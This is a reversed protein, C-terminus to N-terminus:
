TKDKEISKKRCEGSLDSIDLCSSRSKTRQLLPHQLPQQQQQQLSLQKIPSQNVASGNATIGSFISSCLGEGAVGGSGSGGSGSGSGSSCWDAEMAKSASRKFHELFNDIQKEISNSPSNEM